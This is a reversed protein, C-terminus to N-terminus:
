IDLVLLAYVHPILVHPILVRLKEKKGRRSEDNLREQNLRKWTVKEKQNMLKKWVSFQPMYHGPTHFTKPSIWLVITCNFSALFYYFSTNQSIRGRLHRWLGGGGAVQSKTRTHGQHMGTVILKLYFIHHLFIWAILWNWIVLVYWHLCCDTM